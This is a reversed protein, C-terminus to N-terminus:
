HVPKYLRELAATIQTENLNSNSNSESESEPGLNQAESIDIELQGYAEKFIVTNINANSSPHSINFYEQYTVISWITVFVLFVVISIATKKKM